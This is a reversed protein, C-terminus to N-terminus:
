NGGTEAAEPPVYYDEIWARADAASTYEEGTIFEYAEKAAQVAYHKGAVMVKIISEIALKEDMGNYEAALLEIIRQDDVTKLTEEVIEVKIVDDDFESIATQWHDGAQERVDADKDCLFAALDGISDKGFWGLADVFDRRIQPNPSNRVDAILAHLAARDDNDLADQVSHALKREAPTLGDDEEEAHVIRPKAVPRPRPKKEKIKKSKRATKRVRVNDTVATEDEQVPKEDGVFLICAVIVLAAMVAAGLSIWVAAKIVGAKTSM